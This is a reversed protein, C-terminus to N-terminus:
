AKAGRRAHGRVMSPAFGFRQRFRVAFRSPSGYGVHAAIDTVPRATAQLLTLATSMRADVLLEAFSTGEAALRRRLTAESVALARAAQAATWASGIAGALLTRVKAATTAPRSLRQLVVGQELLWHMLELVRLRAIAEPVTRPAAAAHSAADFAARLADPIRALLCAPAASRAARRVQQARAQYGPDDLLSPDFLLWRAEYHAAEAVTNTFDVAQGGAIVIGQGPVARVPPGHEPRVEKIGQDVLILVPVELRMRLIRLSCSQRVQAATAVNARVHIERSLAAPDALRRQAANM